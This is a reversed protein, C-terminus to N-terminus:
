LSISLAFVSRTPSFIVRWIWARPSNKRPKNNKHEQEDRSVKQIPKYHKLGVQAIGPCCGLLELITELLLYRQGVPKSGYDIVETGRPLKLRRILDSFRCLTISKDVPQAVKADGHPVADLVCEVNAHLPRHHDDAGAEGIVHLHNGMTKNGVNALSIGLIFLPVVGKHVVLLFRTLPQCLQELRLDKGGLDVSIFLFAIFTTVVTLAQSGCKPM